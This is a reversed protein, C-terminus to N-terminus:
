WLWSYPNNDEFIDKQEFNAWIISIDSVNIVNDWNLDRPDNNEVTEQWATLIVTIDNGNVMFDYDWSSNRLDWAIQYRFWDDEKSTYNQVGYLNDWTTFDFGTSYWSWVRVDTLYSALHSQWKYVVNYVDNPIIAHFTWYWGSDTEVSWSYKLQNWKYFRIEWVNALSPKSRSGPFVKIQYEIATANLTSRLIIAKRPVTNVYGNQEDWYPIYVICWYYDGWYYEPFKVSALGTFTSFPNLSFTDPTLMIYKWVDGTQWETDCVFLGWQIEIADVAVFRGSIVSDSNNKLYFNLNEEVWGSLSIDKQKLNSDFYFDTYRTDAEYSFCSFVGVFALIALVCFFKKLDFRMKRQFSLLCNVFNVNASKNIM